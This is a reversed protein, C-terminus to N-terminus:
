KGRATKLRKVHDRASKAYAGSPYLALYRAFRTEAEKGGSVLAYWAFAYTAREAEGTSAHAEQLERVARGAAVERAADIERLNLNVILELARPRTPSRQFDDYFPGLLALADATKFQYGLCNAVAFTLYARQSNTLLRGQTLIAEYKGQADRHREDEYAMDALLVELKLKADTFLAMESSTAYMGGKNHELNWLLRGPLTGLGAAEAELYWPDISPLRGWHAKADGFDGRAFSALGRCLAVERQLWIVYWTSASRNFLQGEAIVAGNINGWRDVSRENDPPRVIQRAKEPVNLQGQAGEATAKLWDEARQLWANAAELDAKQELAFQGLLLSMEGGYASRDGVAARTAGIQTAAKLAAEGAPVAAIEKAEEQTATMSLRLDALADPLAKQRVLLAESRKMRITAEALEAARRPIGSGRALSLLCKLRLCEAAAAYDTERHKEIVRSCLVAAWSFDGIRYMRDAHRYEVYGEGYSEVELRIQIAVLKRNVRDVVASGIGTPRGDTGRTAVADRHIRNICERYASAAQQYDGQKFLIDGGLEVFLAQLLDVGENGAEAVIASADQVKDDDLLIRAVEAALYRAPGGALLANEIPLHPEGDRGAPERSGKATTGFGRILWNAAEHIDGRQHHHYYALAAHGMMSETADQSSTCAILRKLAAEDLSLSDIAAISAGVHEEPQIEAGQCVFAFIFSGVLALLGYRIEGISVMDIM